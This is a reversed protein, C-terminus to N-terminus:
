SMGRTGHCGQGDLPIPQPMAAPGRCQGRQLGREEQRRKGVWIIPLGQSVACARVAGHDVGDTDLADVVTPADFSLKRGRRVQIDTEAKPVNGDPSPTRGAGTGCGDRYYSLIRSIEWFANGSCTM